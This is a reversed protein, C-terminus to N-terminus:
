PARAAGEARRRAQGPRPVPGRPRRRGAHVDRRWPGHPLRRSSIVLCASSGGAPQGPARRVAAGDAIRALARALAATTDGSSAV